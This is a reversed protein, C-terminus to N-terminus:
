RAPVEMRAYAAKIDELIEHVGTSLSDNAAAMFSRWRQETEHWDERVEAAGLHMQVRLEDRMQALVDVQERTSADNLSPNRFEAGALWAQLKLEDVVQSAVSTGQEENSM